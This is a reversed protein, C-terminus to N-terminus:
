RRTSKLSTTRKPAAKSWIIQHSSWTVIGVVSLALETTSNLPRRTMLRAGIESASWAFLTIAGTWCVSSDRVPLCKKLAFAASKMSAMSPTEKLLQDWTRHTITDATIVTAATEGKTTIASLSATPTKYSCILSRTMMLCTRWSKSQSLPLAPGAKSRWQRLPKNTQRKMRILFPTM